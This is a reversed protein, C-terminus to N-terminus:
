SLSVTLHKFAPTPTSHSFGSPTLACWTAKILAAAAFFRRKRISPRPRAEKRDILLQTLQESDVLHNTINTSNMAGKPKVKIALCRTEDLEGVGTTRQEVDSDVQQERRRKANTSKVIM